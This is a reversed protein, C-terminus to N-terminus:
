SLKAQYESIKKVIKKDKGKYQLKNHVAQDCNPCLWALNPVKNIKNLPLTEKIRHCHMQHAELLKGCIRCKGKDRNFAYEKNMHYEFNNLKEITDPLDINNLAPRHHPLPKSKNRLYLNRGEETYPTMRQNFRFKEWQSHTIYAMTLGIYSEQHKIAFTKTNCKAHRQRRNALKCLPIKYQRYSKGFLRKFSALACKGIANDIYGFTQSCISTKIYEAIGVIKANAKEIIEAQLHTNKGTYRIQKLEKSIQRVKTKIKDMDPYPKGVIFTPNPNKATKRAPEAKITFGLFKARDKTMDTIFTKEESLELRLRHKFYKKLYKLLRTAEKDNSTLIIWDDAFRVLYKPITGKKRLKARHRDVNTNTRISPHHYMRGITWDFDNLYINALLPSIIGGQVTGSETSYFSDHEMYGAKLMAKIIELVRKDHIGIRWLKKILQRHCICDFYGKIDGEIAIVAKQNSNLSIIGTIDKMAHKTARYPRFGYSNPFFKAEAIPEIIIRLCEQIIRDLITPIGLPRMKGNSKKIYLRRVPRPKYDKIQKHILNILEDKDMQLYQDIRVGDIGPTNAGKNSKMNHIATVITVENFAAELIGNFSKGKLSKNYINDLNKRLESENTFSHKITYNGITCLRYKM